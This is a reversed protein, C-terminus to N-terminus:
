QTLLFLLSTVPSHLPDRSYDNTDTSQRTLNNYDDTKTPIDDSRRNKLYIGRDLHMYM